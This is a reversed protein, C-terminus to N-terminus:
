VFLSSDSDGDLIIAFQEQMNLDLELVYNSLSRKSSHGKLSSYPCQFETIYIKPRIGGKQSESLLVTQPNTCTVQTGFKVLM